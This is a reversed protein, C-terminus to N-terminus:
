FTKVKIINKFLFFLAARDYSCYRRLAGGCYLFLLIDLTGKQGASLVLFITIVNKRDFIKNHIVHKIIM